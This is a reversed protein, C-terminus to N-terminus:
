ANSKNETFYLFVFGAVQELLYFKQKMTIKSEERSLKWALPLCALWVCPLYQSGCASHHYLSSNARNLVYLSTEHLLCIGSYYNSTVALGILTSKKVERTGSSPCNSDLRTCWCEFLIVPKGIEDKGQNRLCKHNPKLCDMWLWIIKLHIVSSLVFRHGAM